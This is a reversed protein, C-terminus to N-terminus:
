FMKDNILQEIATRLLADKTISMSMNTIVLLVHHIDYLFLYNLWKEKLDQYLQLLFLSTVQFRSKPLNEPASIFLASRAILAILNRDRIKCLHNKTVERDFVKIINCLNSDLSIAKVEALNFKMLWENLISISQENFNTPDVITTSQCLINKMAEDIVGKRNESSYVTERRNETYARLYESSVKM